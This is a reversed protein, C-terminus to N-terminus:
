KYHVTRKELLFQIRTTLFIMSFLLLAYVCANMFRGSQVESYVQYIMTKTAGAPGGGTLLKIQAFSRFASTINLFLVFFIQPSAMPLMIKWTQQWPSAGDITAAELLDQSVNRFGVLLYIFSSGIHLWSTVVSLAPLATATDRLWAFDTGLLHNLVGADQRYMFLWIAAAPSSAIAMPLAFLPQYIRSARTKKVCLLAFLMAIGFTLVLNMGAFELTTLVIQWLDDKGLLRKWNALGVWRVFKASDDTLAFSYLITKGFPFYTFAGFLILVPLILLYPLWRNKKTRASLRQPGSKSLVRM